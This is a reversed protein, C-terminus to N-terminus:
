ILMIPHIADVQTGDKIQSQCSVGSAAVIVLEESRIAERIAPFLAAEGVEISLDYHEDEYGFAGAMGCCGADVLSVQYGAIELMKVTADIGNPYGDESPPQAKQYCHGHLLIKPLNTAPKIISSVVIRL